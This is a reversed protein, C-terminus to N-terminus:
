GFTINLGSLALIIFCTATMWHVAREFANFRVITRGSRGKEIRVMGRILYFAILLVLMGLIAIAGIWRLTVEHFQRWDRGQPQILTGSKADPISVRGGIAGGSGLAKLLQDEKVSSATPNVSTPQQAVAPVAVAAFMALVVGVIAFRFVSFRTAM